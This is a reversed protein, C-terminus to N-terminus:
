WHALQERYFDFVSVALRSNTTSSTSGIQAWFTAGKITQGVTNKNNWIGQLPTNGGSADSDTFQGIEVGDVSVKFKPNNGNKPQWELEWHTHNGITFANSNIGLEATTGLLKVFRRNGASAWKNNVVISWEETTFNYRLSVFTQNLEASPAGFQADYPAGISMGFTNDTIHGTADADNRNWILMPYGSVYIDDSWYADKRGTTDTKAKTRDASPDLNYYETAIAIESANNAAIALDSKHGAAAILRPGAGLSNGEADQGTQGMCQGSDVMSHQSCGGIYLGHASPYSKGRRRRLLELVQDENMDEFGGAGKRASIRGAVVRAFDYRAELDYRPTQQGCAPCHYLLPPPQIIAPQVAKQCAPCVLVRRM